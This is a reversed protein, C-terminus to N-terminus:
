LEFEMGEGVLLSCVLGKDFHTRLLTITNDGTCHNLWLTPSDYESELVEIVRDVDDISSSLMHIGGAVAHVKDGHATRAHALTNLIGAHCCGCILVLGERARLVMSLDDRLDDTRWEGDIRRQIRSVINRKEEGETIEGTTFLHETVQIPEASLTLSMKSRAEESIHPFGVRQYRVKGVGRVKEEVAVPHAIVELPRERRELLDPLGGTHDYHGHSLVLRDISEAEVGLIDMNNLLIHGKAGTDFLIRQGDVDILLSQGHDGILSTGEKAGDNYICLIRAKM